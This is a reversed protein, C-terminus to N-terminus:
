VLGFSSFPLFRLYDGTRISTTDAPVDILGEAWSLSSVIGSGDSEFAVLEGDEIRGRLFERRGSRFDKAFGSPMQWARPKPWDAGSMVTLSPRAFILASVFASVPNGPLGFIPVEQWHGLVLPKGPKAAVRWSELRGEQAILQAVHDEDGVSAGGSSILADCRAVANNLTDRLADRSDPVHGLDVTDFGWQKLLGLLMPRNSDYIQGTGAPAGPPLLEDGTSIVGVRLPAYCVAESLGVSLAVGIDQPRLRRGKRLAIEGARLDEGARRINTGELLPKRIMLRGNEVRTDEQPVVRDVGDPIVAGTLIRIAEVEGVKGGFPAGAASRGEILRFATEEGRFGYGDMASNDDPPHSRAAILDQALVSGVADTLPITETRAVPTMRERLALLVDDVSLLDDSM